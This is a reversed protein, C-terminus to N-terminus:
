DEGEDDEDLPMEDEDELYYAFERADEISRLVDSVELDSQPEM